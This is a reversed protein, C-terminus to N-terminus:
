KSTISISRVVAEFEAKIKRQIKQPLSLDISYLVEMTGDGDQYIRSTLAKDATRGRIEACLPASDGPQFQYKSLPGYLDIWKMKVSRRSIESYGSDVLFAIYSSPADESTFIQYADTHGDGCDLFDDSPRFYTVTNEYITTFSMPPAPTDPVEEDAQPEHFLDIVIRGLLEAPVNLPLEKPAQGDPWVYGGDTDRVLRSLFLTQEREDISLCLFKKSFSAFGKIGSVQWFKEAGDQVRNVPRASRSAELATHISAGLAEASVDPKLVTVPEISVRLVSGRLKTQVCFIFGFKANFFVDM